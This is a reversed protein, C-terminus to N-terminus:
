RQAVRRCSHGTCREEVAHTCDHSCGAPRGALTKGAAVSAAAAVAQAAVAEAAVAAAAAIGLSSHHDTVMHRLGTHAVPQAPM